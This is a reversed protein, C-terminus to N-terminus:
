CGAGTAFCVAGKLIAFLWQLLCDDPSMCAATLQKAVAIGLDLAVDTLARGGRKVTRGV